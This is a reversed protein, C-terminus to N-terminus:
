IIDIHMCLVFCIRTSCSFLFLLQIYVGRGDQVVILSLLDPKKVTDLFGLTHLIQMGRIDWRRGVISGTSYQFELLQYSHDPVTVGPVIRVLDYIAHRSPAHYTFIPSIWNPFDLFLRCAPYHVPCLGVIGYDFHCVFFTGTDTQFLKPSTGLYQQSLLKVNQFHISGDVLTLTAENISGLHKEDYESYFHALYIITVSDPSRSVVVFDKAVEMAGMRRMFLHGHLDHLYCYNVTVFFCCDHVSNPDFPRSYM